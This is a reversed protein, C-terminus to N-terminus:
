QLLCRVVLLISNRCIKPTWVMVESVHRLRFQELLLKDTYSFEHLKEINGAGSRLAQEFRPFDNM